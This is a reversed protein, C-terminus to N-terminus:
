VEGKYGSPPGEQSGVVPTFGAAYREFRAQWGGEESRRGALRDLCDDWGAANRAASAPPLEDILVLTTGAHADPHLEFRLTDEGWTYVLLKPEEVALVEGELTMDIVEPPFRFAITAGVEWRDGSVEVDCPFWSRLQDRDTIARWVVEPPDVLHRELRVAPRQTDTLLTADSM